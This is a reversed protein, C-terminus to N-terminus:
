YVVPRGAYIIYNLTLSPNMINLPETVIGTGGTQGNIFLKKKNDYPGGDSWPTGVEIHPETDGTDTISNFQRVGDSLTHIHEPLNEQEILREENGGTGGLESAYPEHVNQVDTEGMDSKGMPFRGRLDPVCFLWPSTGVPTFNKGIIDYLPRNSFINLSQGNCIAWGNPAYSGAFPVVTGVEFGIFSNFLSTKSIKYLQNHTNSHVLLFDNDNFDIRNPDNSLLSEDEMIDKNNILSNMTTNFVITENDEGNFTVENSTVDGEMVFTTNTNIRNASTANGNVNGFVTGTINGHFENAYIKDYKSDPGGISSLNSTPKINYTNLTSYIYANGNVIVDKQVGIGGYTVISGTDASVSNTTNEIRHKGTMRMDGFLDLEYDPEHTNIGVKNGNGVVLVDEFSSNKKLQFKISSGEIQNKLNVNQDEICLNIFNAINLGSYSQITIEKKTVVPKDSRLVNGALVVEDGVLLSKSKESIGVYQTQTDTQAFYDSNLNFGSKIDKFGPIYSKPTFNNNSVVAITKRELNFKLINYPQNDKGVIIGSTIGSEESSDESSGILVRTNGIYAYLRKTNIDLWIDGDSVHEPELVTRHVGSSPTWNSGNFIFLQNVDGSTDYWLQGQVPNNPPTDSSSNELLHLFNKAISEGYSTSNKGPFEMSTEQNISFDEVELPPKSEDTYPIFYSM